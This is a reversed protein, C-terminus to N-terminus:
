SWVEEHEEVCWPHEGECDPCVRGVHLDDEPSYEGLREQAEEQSWSGREVCGEDSFLGWEIASM